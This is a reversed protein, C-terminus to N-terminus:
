YSYAIRNVISAFAGAFLVVFLITLVVGILIWILKAKAWAKRNPNSADGFAWVFCMILGVLPIALILDMLFFQGTTLPQNNMPQIVVPAAPQYGPQQAAQQQAGADLRAGCTVCFKTSDSNNTGCNPCIM